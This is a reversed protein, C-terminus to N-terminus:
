APAAAQFAEAGISTVGQGITVSALYRCDYFAQYGISTVSDPITVNTLISTYYQFTHPAIGTVRLGNISSPILLDSDFEYYGTITATGDGNDTYYFQSHVAAPLALLLLLLLWSASM